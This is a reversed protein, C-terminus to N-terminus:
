YDSDSGELLEYMFRGMRHADRPSPGAVEDDEEALEEEEEDTNDYILAEEEM